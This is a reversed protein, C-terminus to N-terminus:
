YFLTITVTVTTDMDPPSYIEFYNAGDLIPLVFTGSSIPTGSVPYGVTIPYKYNTLMLTVPHTAQLQVRIYGAYSTQIAVSDFSNKQIHLVTGSAVTQNKQLNAIQTMNNYNSQLLAYSSQLTLYQNFLSTYNSTLDAYAGYLGTYNNSLDVLTQTQQDYSQQLARINNSDTYFIYGAFAAIAAFAVFAALFAGFSVTRAKKEKGSDSM